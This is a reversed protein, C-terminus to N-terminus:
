DPLDNPLNEHEPLIQGYNYTSRQITGAALDCKELIDEDMAIYGCSPRLIKDYIMYRLELPLRLFTSPENIDEYSNM